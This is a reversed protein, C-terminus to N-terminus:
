KVGLAAGLLVLLWEKWKRAPFVLACFLFIRVTLAAPEGAGSAEGYGVWEGKDRVALSAELHGFQRRLRQLTLATGKRNKVWTKLALYEHQARRPTQYALEM